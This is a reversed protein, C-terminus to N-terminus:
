SKIDKICCLTVLTKPFSIQNGKLRGIATGIFLESRHGTFKEVLNQRSYTSCNAKCAALM